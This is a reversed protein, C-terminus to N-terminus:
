ARTQEIGDQIAKKLSELDIDKLAKFRICYGTVTAKGITPAYKEQLYKKDGIGMIYVSLGTSNASIGTQYFEKTKGDAYNKNLTGYGISPNSVVKGSQDKGDLFWLKFDPKMELITGHLRRMDTQKPEPISELYRDIQDDLSM